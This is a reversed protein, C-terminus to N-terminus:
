SDLSQVRCKLVACKRLLVEEFWLPSRPYRQCFHLSPHKHIALALLWQPCPIGANLAERYQASQAPPKLIGSGQYFLFGKETKMLTKGIVGKRGKFLRM